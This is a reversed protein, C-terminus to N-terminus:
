ATRAGEDIMERAEFATPIVKYRATVDILPQIFRPDISTGCTTRVGKAIESPNLGTIKALPEVTEAHHANTYTTAERMTKVFRDVYPRNKSAFDTTTFWASFLWRPGIADFQRTLIRVKGEDVATSLHPQEMPGADIRGTAIAEPVSPSPIAVTKLTSSDFGNKDLWLRTALTYQDSAGGPSALTKGVLDGPGRIPGDPKVVLAVVPATSEWIGAAAIVVFPLNRARAAILSVLSSKGIQFTGGAVAAAVAAGSTAPTITADFGNRRFLGSSQAYVFPTVDDGPVGGAHLPQLAATQAFAPVATVAAGTVALFAVRSLRESM